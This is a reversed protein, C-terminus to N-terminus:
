RRTTPWWWCTARSPARLVAPDARGAGHAGPHEAPQPREVVAARHRGRDPQLHHAAPRHRSRRVQPLALLYTSMLKSLERHNLLHGVIPHSDRLARWRRRTPPTAPRPRASGPCARPARVPDPGTAAALGPQVARRGARLHLDGAGGDPGPDQRHDGGAPLLGPPHRGEGDRHAGPHAATRHGPVPGVHGARAARAGAQRRAAARAAAGAAAAAGRGAGAGPPAPWARAPRDRSRPGPRGAPLGAARAGAPLGAIYTDHAAQTWWRTCPAAAVQLRPLGGGSRALLARLRRRPRRRRASAEVVTFAGTTRAGPEGAAPPRRRRWGRGRRRRRGGAGVPRPRSDSCGRRGLGAGGPWPRPAPCRAGRGARATWRGRCAAAAADM